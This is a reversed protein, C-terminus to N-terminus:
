NRGYVNQIVEKRLGEVMARAGEDEAMPMFSHMLDICKIAVDYERILEQVLKIVEIDWDPPESLTGRLELVKNLKSITTM